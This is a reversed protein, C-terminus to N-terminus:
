SRCIASASPTTSDGRNYSDLLAAGYRTSPKAVVMDGIFLERGQSLCNKIKAAEESSIGSNRTSGTAAKRIRYLERIEVINEVSESLEMISDNFDLPDIGLLRLPDDRDTRKKIEKLLLSLNKAPVLAPDKLDPIGKSAKFAALDPYPTRKVKDIKKWESIAELEQTIIADYDLDSSFLPQNSATTRVLNDQTIEDLITM